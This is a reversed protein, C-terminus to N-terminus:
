NKANGKPIATARKPPALVANRDIGLREGNAEWIADLLKEGPEIDMDGIVDDTVEQGDISKAFQKILFVDLEYRRTMDVKVIPHDNDDITIDLMRKAASATLQKDRMTVRTRIVATKENGLDVTKEDQM